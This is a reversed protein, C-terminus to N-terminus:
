KVNRVTPVVELGEDVNVAIPPLWKLVLKREADPAIGVKAKPGTWFSHWHARRVHPRPSAHTGDGHQARRDADKAAQIAAGIRWGVDWPVPQPPPFLRMGAKTKQPHPRLPRLGPQHTRIEANQSCLYLVTSVMPALGDAMKVTEVDLVARMNDNLEYGFKSAQKYAEQRSHELGTALDSGLHIPLAGNLETGSDVMLRLEERGDNADSELFAFFGFMELGNWQRGPTEIYVCWEPLAHLVESPINGDVPTDWLAALVDPHYRYIGQTPRWAALTALAGVGSLLEPAIEAGGSTIAYSGAVPMYCWNPWDPLDKGRRERMQDIQAWIEPRSAVIRRIYQQLRKVTPDDPQLKPAPPAAKVAARERIATCSPCIGNAWQGPRPEILHCDTCGRRKM